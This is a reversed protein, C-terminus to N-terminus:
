VVTALPPPPPIPNIITPAGRHLFPPLFTNFQPFYGRRLNSKHQYEPTKSTYM